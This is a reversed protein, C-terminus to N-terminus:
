VEDVVVGSQDDRVDVPCNGLSVRRSTENFVNGNRSNGSGIDPAEEQGDQSQRVPFMVPHHLQVALYALLAVGEEVEGVPGDSLRVHGPM